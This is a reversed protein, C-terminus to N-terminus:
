GRQQAVYITRTRVLLVATDSLAASYPYYMAPAIPERLGRNPADRM